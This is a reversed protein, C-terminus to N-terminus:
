EGLVVEMPMMKEDYFALEHARTISCWSIRNKSQKKPEARERIEESSLSHIGFIIHADPVYERITKIAPACFERDIESPHVIGAPHTHVIAILEPEEDVEKLIHKVLEETNAIILSQTAEKTVFRSSLKHFTDPHNHKRGSLAYLVEIDDQAPRFSSEARIEALNLFNSSLSLANKAEGAINETKETSRRVIRIKSGPGAKISIRKKM